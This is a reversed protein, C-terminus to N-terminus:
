LNFGRKIKLTNKDARWEGVAFFEGQNYLRLLSDKTPDTPEVGALFGGKWLYDTQKANLDMAEYEALGVDLPLLAKDIDANIAALNLMMKSDFVGTQTRHLAILHGVTGLEKAIDEGLVRVYTGKSCHVEFEIEDESFGLLDLSYIEIERAEREIEIGERAYKHLSRGEFKISSYMPPTQMIKGLFKAFVAEIIEPSLEVCGSRTATIEGEYDGTATASGLKLKAIYRKDSALLFSSVKTAEGLCVPLLGTAFPDLTGTHGAKKCQYAKMVQKVVTTSTMGAPKDVLVIGNIELRLAKPMLKPEQKSYRPLEPQNM